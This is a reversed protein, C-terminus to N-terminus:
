LNCRVLAIWPHTKRKEPPTELHATQMLRGSADLRISKTGVKGGTVNGGVVRASGAEIGIVIDGHSTYDAVAVAEEYTEIYPREADFRSAVVIDGIRVPELSPPLAVFPATPKNPHNSASKRVYKSHGAAAPFRKSTNPDAKRMAWSIFAASWPTPDTGDRGAKGVGDLWYLGVRASFPPLIELGRKKFAQTTPLPDPRPATDWWHLEAELLELLHEVYPTM